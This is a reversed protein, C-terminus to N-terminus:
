IRVPKLDGINMGEISFKGISFRVLRLTPFGIHATMRRVQRNRGEYLTIKLWTDPVTARVRIPPNRPPLNPTPIVEVSAPQTLGDKLIVGQRLADLQNEQPKGEVQVLYTKPWKRGPASIQHQLKGQNTLFVLGESDYDLRGAPYIDPIQIYAALTEKEEHPSFQCLVRFPKFFLMSQPPTQKQDQRKRHKKKPNTM